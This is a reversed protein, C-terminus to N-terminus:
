NKNILYLKENEKIDSIKWIRYEVYENKECYENIIRIFNYKEDKRLSLWYKIVDHRLNFEDDNNNEYYLDSDSEIKYDNNNLRCRIINRNFDDNTVECSYRIIKKISEYLEKKGTSLIIYEIRQEKTLLNWFRSFNHVMIKLIKNNEPNKELDLKYKIEKENNQYAYLFLKDIESLKVM